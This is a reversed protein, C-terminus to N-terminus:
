KQEGTCQYKATVLTRLCNGSNSVRMCQETTGGFPEANTYGWAKCRNSALIAGDEWQVVPSEFLGYEYSLDVVGDARSGGTAQLTKVSSCGLLLFAAFLIKKM